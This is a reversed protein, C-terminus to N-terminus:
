LVEWFTEVGRLFSFCHSVHVAGEHHKTWPEVTSCHSGNSGWTGCLSVAGYACGLPSGAAAQQCMTGFTHSFALCWVFGFGATAIYLHWGGGSALVACHKFQLTTLDFKLWNTQGQVKPTVEVFSTPSGLDSSLFDLKFSRRYDAGLLIFFRKRSHLRAKKAEPANMAKKLYTAPLEEPVDCLIGLLHEQLPVRCIEPTQFEPLQNYRLALKDRFSRFVCFSVFPTVEYWLTDLSEFVTLRM